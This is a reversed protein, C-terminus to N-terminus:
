HRERWDGRHFVVARERDVVVELWSLLIGDLQFAGALRWFLSRVKKLQRAGRPSLGVSTKSRRILSWIESFNRIHLAVSLRAACLDRARVRERCVPTPVLLSPSRSNISAIRRGGKFTFRADDFKPPGMLGKADNPAGVGKKPM